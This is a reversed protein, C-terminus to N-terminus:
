LMKGVTKLSDSNTFSLCSGFDTSSPSLSSCCHSNSNTRTDDTPDQSSKNQQLTLLAIRHEYYWTDYLPYQTGVYTYQKNFNLHFHAATQYQKTIRHTSLSQSIEMATYLEKRGVSLLIHTISQM